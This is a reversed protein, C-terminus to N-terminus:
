EVTTLCKDCYRRIVIVNGVEELVEITAAASCTGCVSPRNLSRPTVPRTQVINQVSEINSVHKVSKTGILESM